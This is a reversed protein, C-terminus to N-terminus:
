LEEFEPVFISTGPFWPAGGKPTRPRKEQRVALAHECMRIKRWRHWHEGQLGKCPCESAKLPPKKGEEGM